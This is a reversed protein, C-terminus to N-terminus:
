NGSVSEGIMLLAIFDFVTFQIKVIKASLRDKQPTKEKQIM